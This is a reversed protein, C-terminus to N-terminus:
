WVAACLCTHMYKYRQAFVMFGEKLLVIRLATWLYIHMYRYLITAITVLLKIRDDQRFVMM